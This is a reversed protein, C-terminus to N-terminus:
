LGGVARGWILGAGFSVGDDAAQARGMAHFTDLVASLWGGLFEAAGV